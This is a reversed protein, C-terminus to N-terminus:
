FQVSAGMASPPAPPHFYQTVWLMCLLNCATADCRHLETCGPPLPIHVARPTRGRSPSFVPAPFPLAMLRPTVGIGHGCPLLPPSKYIDIDHRRVSAEKRRGGRRLLSGIGPMGAGIRSAKADCRHRGMATPPAPPHCSSHREM